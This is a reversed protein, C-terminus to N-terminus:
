RIVVARDGDRLLTSGVTVVRQNLALGHTVTVSNGIVEGLRVERLRVTAQGPARGDGQGDGDGNGDLVFVGFGRPDSPSRVVAGLSVLVSEPGLAAGPVRVSVVAGPRLARDGNSLAAEVSFVRGNSDAAPAIRTVRADLLKEPAKVESEAGVFVQVPSGIRLTEVLSQPAGFVAKVSSTDAISIAAQGPSVLAGIEVQRSLVVGSMPARLVTDGLSIQAEALQARAAEVQATAADAQSVRSDLEARTIADEAFLSRARDLEQRALKAQARAQALQAQTLAVKQAYDTVRVRALVTGKAVVDGKDILRKGNATAILDVYGGVRFAMDVRARAELSGSYRTPGAGGRPAVTEVRVPIPRRASAPESAAEVSHCAPLASALAIWTAAGILPSVRTTRATTTTM